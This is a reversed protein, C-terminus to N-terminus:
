RCVRIDMVYPHVIYNGWPPLPPLAPIDHNFQTLRAFADPWCCPYIGLISSRKRRDDLGDTTKGIM